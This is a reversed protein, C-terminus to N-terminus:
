GTAPGDIHHIQLEPEGDVLGPVIAMFATTHEHQMHADLAAQDRWVEVGIIRDPDRVDAAFTYMLCGDDHETDAAIEAAARVVEDRLGPRARASGIVVIM